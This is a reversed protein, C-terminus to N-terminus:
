NYLKRYIYNIINQKTILIMRTKNKSFVVYVNTLTYGDTHKMITLASALTTCCLSHVLAQLLISVKDSSISMSVVDSFLLITLKKSVFFFLLNVFEMTLLRIVDISTLTGYSFATFSDLILFLNVAISNSTKRQVFM